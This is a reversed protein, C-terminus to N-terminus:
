TEVKITLYTEVERLCQLMTQIKTLNDEPCNEVKQLNQLRLNDIVKLLIPNAAKLLDLDGKSFTNEEM